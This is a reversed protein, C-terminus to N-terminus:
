GLPKPLVKKALCLSVGSVESVGSSFFANQPVTKLLLLLPASSESSAGEANQPLATFRCVFSVTKVAYSDRGVGCVRGALGM